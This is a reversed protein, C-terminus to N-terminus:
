ESATFEGASVAIPSLESIADSLARVRADRRMDPHVLLWAQRQIKTAAASLVAQEELEAYMGAQPRPLLAVGVGERVFRIMATRNGTAIAVSGANEREWVAEMENHIPPGTVVWRLPDRRIADATGFVGYGIRLLRRGWLGPPPRDMVGIAMDVERRRVSPGSYGLSLEVRLNPYRDTLRTLPEVLLPLFGDVTTLSVVGSVESQQVSALDRARALQTKMTQALTVLACGARTLELEDGGRVVLQAGVAAELADIRRYVTSSSVGIERAVAPPRQLRVLAELFRLDNWNLDPTM